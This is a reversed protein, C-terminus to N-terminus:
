SFSVLVLSRGGELCQKRVIPTTGNITVAAAGSSTARGASDVLLASRVAPVNSPDAEVLLLGSTAVSALRSAQPNESAPAIYSQNVGLTVVTGSSAAAQVGKTGNNDSFLRLEFVEATGAEHTEVNRITQQAYVPGVNSAM